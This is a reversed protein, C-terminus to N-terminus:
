AARGLPDRKALEVAAARRVARVKRQKLGYQSGLLFRPDKPDQEPTHPRVVYDASALTATVAEKPDDGTYVYAVTRRRDQFKERQFHPCFRLTMAFCRPHVPPGNTEYRAVAGFVVTRGLAEGCVACAGDRCAELAEGDFNLWDNSQQNKGGLFLAPLMEAPRTKPFPVFELRRRPWGRDWPEASM